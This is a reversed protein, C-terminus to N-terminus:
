FEELCKKVLVGLKKTIRNSKVRLSEETKKLILAIEKFKLGGFYRLNTVELDEKPLHNLSKKLCEMERSEDFPDDFPVPTFYSDIEEGILLSKKKRYFDIITNRAIAIIWAKPNNPNSPHGWNEYAKRFVESVIDEADWKNGIKVVVYRYVDDFYEDYLEIFTKSM